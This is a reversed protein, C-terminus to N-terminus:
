EEEGEEELLDALRRLSAPSVNQGKLDDMTFGKEKSWPFNPRTSHSARRPPPHNPDFIEIFLQAAACLASFAFSIALPISLGYLMDQIDYWRADIRWLYFVEVLLVVFGLCLAMWKAQKVVQLPDTREPRHVIDKGGSGISDWRPM